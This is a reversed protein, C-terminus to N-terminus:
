DPLYSGVIPRRWYPTFDPRVDAALAIRPPASLAERLALRLLEDRIEIRGDQQYQEVLRARAGHPYPGHPAIGVVGGYRAHLAVDLKWQEIWGAFVAPDPQEVVETGAAVDAEFRALRELVVRFQELRSREPDQASLADIRAHLETLKRARQDRDRREFQANYAAIEALEVPTAALGERLIVDRGVRQFLMQALLRARVRLDSTETLSTTDVPQGLVIVSTQAAAAGCFLLLCSAVVVWARRASAAQRQGLM